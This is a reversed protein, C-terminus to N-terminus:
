ISRLVTCRCYVRLAEICRFNLFFLETHATTQTQPFCFPVSMGDGVVLRLTGCVCVCRQQITCMVVGREKDLAMTQNLSVHLMSKHKSSCLYQLTFQYTCLWWVTQLQRNFSFWPRLTKKQTRLTALITVWWIGRSLSWASDLLGPMPSRWRSGAPHLSKLVEAAVIIKPQLDQLHMRSCCVTDNSLFETLHYTYLWELM